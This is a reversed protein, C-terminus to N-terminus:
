VYRFVIYMTDNDIRISDLRNKDIYLAIENKISVNFMPKIHKTEIDAILSKKKGQIDYSSDVVYCSIDDKNSESEFVISNTDEVKYIKIRDSSTNFPEKQIDYQTLSDNIYSDLEIYPKYDSLNLKFTKYINDLLVKVYLISQYDNSKLYFMIGKHSRNLTSSFKYLTTSEIQISFSKDSKNM